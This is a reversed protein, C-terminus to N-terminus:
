AAWVRGMRSFTVAYAANGRCVAARGVQVRIWLRLSFLSPVAIAVYYIGTFSIIQLYM